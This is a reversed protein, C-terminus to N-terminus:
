DVGSRCRNQGGDEAGAKGGGARGGAKGGGARRGGARGGARVGAAEAPQLRPRIAGQAGAAPPHPFAPPAGPHPLPRCTPLSM